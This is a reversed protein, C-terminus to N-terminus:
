GTEVLKRDLISLDPIDTKRLEIQLTDNINYVRKLIEIKLSRM